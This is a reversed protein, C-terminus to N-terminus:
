LLELPLPQAMDRDLVFAKQTFTPSSIVALGLQGEPPFPPVWTESCSEYILATSRRNSYSPSLFTQLSWRKILVCCESLRQLAKM